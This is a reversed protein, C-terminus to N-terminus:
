DANLSLPEQAVSKLYDRYIVPSFEKAGFCNLHDDDMFFRTQKESFFDKKDIFYVGEWKSLLDHLDHDFRTRFVEFGPHDRYGQTYPPVYFIVKVDLSGALSLLANMFFLGQTNQLSSEEVNSRVTEDALRPIDNPNVIECSHKAGEIVRMHEAMEAGTHYGEILQSKLWEKGLRWYYLADRYDVEFDMLQAVWLDPLLDILKLTLTKRHDNTYFFSPHLPIWIRELNPMEFIYRFVTAYTTEPSANGVYANYGVKGMEAFILGRSHSNGAAFDTVELADVGNFKGEEKRFLLPFSVFALCIVILLYRFSSTSM